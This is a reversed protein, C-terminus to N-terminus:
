VNYLAAARATGCFKREQATGHPSSSHCVHRRAMVNLFRNPNEEFTAHFNHNTRLRASDRAKTELEDLLTPTIIQINNM